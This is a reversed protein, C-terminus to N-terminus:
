APQAYSFADPNDAVFAQAQNEDLSQLEPEHERRWHCYLSAFTILAARQRIDLEAWPELEPQGPLDRFYPRLGDAALPGDRGTFIGDLVPEPLAPLLDEQPDFAIDNSALAHKLAGLDHDPVSVKFHLM